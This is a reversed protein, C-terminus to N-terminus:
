STAVHIPQFETELLGPGVLLSTSIKTSPALSPGLTQNVLYGRLNPSPSHLESFPFCGFSWLQVRCYPRGNVLPGQRWVNYGLWLAQGKPGAKKGVREAQKEDRRGTGERLYSLLVFVKLLAERAGWQDYRLLWLTHDNLVRAVTTQSLCWNRAKPGGRHM